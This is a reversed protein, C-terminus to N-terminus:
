GRGREQGAEIPLVREGHFTTITVEIRESM